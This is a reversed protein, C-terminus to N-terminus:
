IRMTFKRSKPSKGSKSSKPSKSSRRGGVRLVPPLTPATTAHLSTVNSVHTEPTEALVHIEPTVDSVHTIPSVETEPTVNSVHTEPASSSSKSFIADSLKSLISKNTNSPTTPTTPSIPPTSANSSPYNTHKVLLDYALKKAEEIHHVPQLYGEQEARELFIHRLTKIDDLNKTVDDKTLEESKHLGEAAGSLYAAALLNELKKSYNEM